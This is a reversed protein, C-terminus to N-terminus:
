RKGFIYHMVERGAAPTDPFEGLADVIGDDVPL